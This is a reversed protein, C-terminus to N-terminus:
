NGGGAKLAYQEKIQSLTRPTVATPVSPLPAVNVWTNTTGCLRWVDGSAALFSTGAFVRVESIPVPIPPSSTTWGVCNPSAVTGDQPLYFNGSGQVVFGSMPPNAVAPTAWEHAAFRLAAVIGCAYFLNRLLDKM